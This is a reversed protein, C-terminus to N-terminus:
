VFSSKLVRYSHLRICIPFFKIICLNTRFKYHLIDLIAARQMEAVDTDTSLINEAALCMM